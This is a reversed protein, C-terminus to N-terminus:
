REVLGSGQCVRCQTEIIPHTAHRGEVARYRYGEGDCAPCEEPVSARFTTTM